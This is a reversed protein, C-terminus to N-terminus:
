RKWALSGMVERFLALANEATFGSAAVKVIAAKNKAEVMAMVLLGDLLGEFKKYARFCITSKWTVGRLEVFDTQCEYETVHKKAQSGGLSSPTYRSELFRYFQVPNLEKTEIWEADYHFSGVTLDGAIFINDDSRCHQHVSEYSDEEKSDSHGWCRLAQHLNLPITLEGLLKSEFPATLLADTFAQQDAMLEARIQAHFNESAPNQAASNLLKQLRAAPVLFSIQEGGKSVNVGIVAGNERVAPGGSMGSNLSGSFLIKQYRSRKVLGNYTGEIITMGLDLPNGISYIRVGKGPPEQALQLFNSGLADSHVIALDHIVDIAQLSVPLKTGAATLIELRYKDPEDVYAAVVHYNTAILGDASVQFGSGLSYQDGSGNDIVRVQFVMQQLE